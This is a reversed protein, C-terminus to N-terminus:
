KDGGDDAGGPQSSGSGAPPTTAGTTDTDPTSADAADESSTGADETPPGGGDAGTGGSEDGPPSQGANGGVSAAPEALPAPCSGDALAPACVSVLVYSIAYRGGSNPNTPALVVGDAAGELGATDFTYPDGDERAYRTDAPGGKVQVECLPLVAGGDTPVLEFAVGWDGDVATVALAYGVLGEDFPYTRGPELPEEAELKGVPWCCDCAWGPPCPEAAGPAFPNRDPNANRCQVAAIDLPLTVRESGVYGQLDYELLVFLDDALCELGDGPDGNGDLRRGTRLGEAVARLSGADILAGPTGDADAYRLRVGLLEALTTEPPCDARLWLSAPNNTGGPSDPLSLRLLTRGAGEAPVGLPLDLRPGDAVGDPDALDVDVADHWYAVTLDVLGATLGGGAAETDRLLAGTGQGALAGAGGAAALAALVRRRSITV